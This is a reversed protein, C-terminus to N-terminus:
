KLTCLVMSWTSACSESTNKSHRSTGTPLELLVAKTKMKGASSSWASVVATDTM